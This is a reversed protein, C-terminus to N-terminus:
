WPFSAAILDSRMLPLVDPFIFAGTSLAELVPEVFVSSPRVAFGLVIVAGECVNVGSNESFRPPSFRFSGEDELVPFPAKLM